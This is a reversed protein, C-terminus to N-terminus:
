EGQTEAWAELADLRKLLDDSVGGNTRAAQAATVADFEGQVRMFRRELRKLHDEVAELRAVIQADPTRFPNWVGYFTDVKLPFAIL